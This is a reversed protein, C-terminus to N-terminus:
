LCRYSKNFGQNTRAEFCRIDSKKLQTLRQAKKVLRQAISLLEGMGSAGTRKEM